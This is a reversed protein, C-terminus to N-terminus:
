GCAQATSAPPEAPVRGFDLGYAKLAYERVMRHTNFYAGNIAIARRMVGLWGRRDTYYMPMVDRELREYLASADAERDAHPEGADRDPGVAWGTRGDLCGEVWWGDLVSLSPVGNVAAKMGSTGSAELPRQPTNLWVDCGAVLEGALDMDYGSLYAIRIGGGSHEAAKMLRVIVDKGGSDRPHSKGAFVIQVPGVSEALHRLRAPDDLILDLRKYPTARRAVGITLLRREFGANAERNIRCLLRRKAADHAEAVESEPIESAGRLRTSDSRWGSIHRDFVARMEPSAWTPAHVGNTISAVDAGPFMRRTVEAHRRSVANTFRSLGMATRTTDLEGHEVFAQHTSEVVDAGAADRVWEVPFRDHGAPVPTHTTFVCRERVRAPDGSERLLEATLLAAHGENMHYTALNQYGLARLMRVGGIGLVMEQRLRYPHDGGYLYDTLLRHAHDNEPLDTDLLFVPVRAGTAGLVDFRWAGVQVSLGDISLSITRDMRVAHEQIAWRVPDEKQYGNPDISQHFYGKRHALSLAVAPLGLDAMARLTDGALVGLGGSYTPMAPDLAVEMSFYAIAADQM